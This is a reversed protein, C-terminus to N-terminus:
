IRLRSFDDFALVEHVLLSRWDLEARKEQLLSKQEDVMIKNFEIIYENLQEQQRQQQSELEGSRKATQKDQHDESGVLQGPHEAVRRIGTGELYM